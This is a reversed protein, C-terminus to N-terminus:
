WWHHSAGSYLHERYHLIWHIKKTKKKPFPPHPTPPLAHTPKKECMQYLYLTMLILMLKSDTYKKHLNAGQQTVDVKQHLCFLLLLLLLLLLLPSSSSSSSSSSFLLPLFLLNILFFFLFFFFSPWFSPYLLWFSFPPPFPLSSPFYFCLPALGAELKINDFAM